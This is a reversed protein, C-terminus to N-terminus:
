SGVLEPRQHRITCDDHLMDTRDNDEHAAEGGDELFSDGRLCDHSPCGRASDGPPHQSVKPLRTFFGLFSRLLLRSYLADIGSVIILLDGM